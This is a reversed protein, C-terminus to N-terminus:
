RVSALLRRVAPLDFESANGSATVTALKSTGQFMAFAMELDKGSDACKMIHLTISRAKAKIVEDSAKEFSSCQASLGRKIGQEIEADQADGSVSAVNIGQLIIAFHRRKKDVPTLTIMSMFYLNAGFMQKYGPPIDFNAISAALKHQAAPNSQDSKVTDILRPAVVFIFISVVLVCIAALSGLVILFVKM